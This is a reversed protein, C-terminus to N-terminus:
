LALCTVLHMYGSEPFSVPPCRWQASVDLHGFKTSFEMESISCYLICSVALFSMAICFVFHKFEPGFGSTLYGYCFM